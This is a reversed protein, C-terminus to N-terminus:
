KTGGKMMNIGILGVGVVGIVLGVPWFKAWDLGAFLSDAVHPTCTTTEILDPCPEGEDLPPTIIIRERVKQHSTRGETDIEICDGWASWSSVECDTPCPTECGCGKQSNCPISDSSINVIFRQESLSSKDQCSPAYNRIATKIIEDTYAYSIDRPMPRMRFDTEEEAPRSQSDSSYEALQHPWRPYNRPSMNNLGIKGNKVWFYCGCDSESVTAHTDTNKYCVEKMVRKDSSDCSGIGKPSILNHNTPFCEFLEQIMITAQAVLYQDVMSQHNRWDRPLCRKSGDAFNVCEHKVTLVGDPTTCLGDACEDDYNCLEMSKIGSTFDYNENKTASLNSLRTAKDYEYKKGSGDRVGGLYVLYPARVSCKSKELEPVIYNPDDIGVGEFAVKDSTEAGFSIVKGYNFFDYGIVSM